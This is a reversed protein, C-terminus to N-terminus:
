HATDRSDELINFLEVAIQNLDSQMQAVALPHNTQHSLEFLNGEGLERELLESQMLQGIFDMKLFAAKLYQRCDDFKDSALYEAATWYDQLCEEWKSAVTRSSVSQVADYEYKIDALATGLVTLRRQLSERVLWDQFPIRSM